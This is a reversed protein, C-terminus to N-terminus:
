RSAVGEARGPPFEDESFGEQAERGQMALFREWTEPCLDRALADAADALVSQDGDRVMRTVHAWSLRVMEAESVRSLFGAHDALASVVADVTMAFGNQGLHQRLEDADLGPSLVDVELIARRLRDLEPEPFDLAAIDEHAEAVLFPHEILLGILIERQRRGPSPPPPPAESRLAGIPTSPTRPFRHMNGQTQRGLAFLRDRLFRRYEAQVTRDAITAAHAMLRHELDARREPTAISKADLESQWLKEALPKAARLLDIFAPAGSNRILSDPDEGAPLTVFRLSHGPKLLPL